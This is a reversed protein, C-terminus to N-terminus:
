KRIYLKKTKKKTQTYTNYVNFFEVHAFMAENINFYFVNAIIYINRDKQFKEHM